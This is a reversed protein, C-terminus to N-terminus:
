CSFKQRQLVNTSPAVEGGHGSCQGLKEPTPLHKPDYARYFFKSVEVATVWM